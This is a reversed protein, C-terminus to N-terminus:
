HKFNTTDCTASLCDILRSDLEANCIVSEAYGFANSINELLSKIKEREKLIQIVDDINVAVVRDSTLAQMAASLAARAAFHVHNSSHPTLLAETELKVTNIYNMLEQFRGPPVDKYTGVRFQNKIQSYLKSYVGKRESKEVSVARASVAEQVERQQAPSLGAQSIVMADFARIVLLHFKASIWMAYSYVLEKCAYTGPNKGGKVVKHALVLDPTQAIEKILEQTQDNRIFRFPTHKDEGGAAKHLDNLSYLNDLQRIETSFITLTNM